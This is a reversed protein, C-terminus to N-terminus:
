CLDHLARLAMAATHILELRLAAPDKPTSGGKCVEAWYEVNFEEAIIGYAEHHSNFPTPHKLMARHVERVVDLGLNYLRHNFIDRPLRNIQAIDIQADELAQEMSRHSGMLETVAKLAASRFKRSESM